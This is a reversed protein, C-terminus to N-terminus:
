KASLHFTLGLTAGIPYGPTGHIRALIPDGPRIRSGYYNQTEYYTKNTLNDISVNFDIWRRIPKVMSFDLVTLGSARVTPDLGDLRYSDIYRFRLSGSFGHWGALSLAANAVVHPARDVYIRPLTGRYFANSVKTLGGNLSLHRNMQLSMKAEFGHARSPGKFEYTGDDPIYVQENSRDILFLDSSLSLRNLHLAAGAQYFDTTSVRPSGPRQVVGRADQSAIGRGYNLHLSLPVRSSPTFALNAKPQVRGSGQSGSMLPDVRDRVNFRFYDVRMGADVHLRGNLVDIGQQVYGAGNTVHANAKSVLEIPNRGITRSLSVLIQNDHFNAGTLLLARQGFLKYPHLYQTNVGEILRSDHQLFEDGDREDNLFFTFNIFHDFLSRSTFGDLKFTDGSEWEKRYYAALTGSRVRGGNDPDLFGFRDLRGAAVEDLPIQGSSYFDNRGVNLKIGATQGSGKTWSYNGTLNDRRYRLPNLFPGDSRSGEYALLAHGHTVDPSYAVFARYTGFSGGQLRATYRDPLSEKLLIHVVGLGSFDGYEPSFPGNILNVEQVLEPTLSKLQGLYGQGHGQTAHNQQVNDVLVKLGGSVGGHDMNFGFRRVELSKGGGEHQGLSLGADLTHFVQDDRSFLTNRYVVADRRDISPELSAATIVLSEHIPPVAFEVVIRLNESSEEAGLLMEQPVVYNGGVRLTLPGWPVEVKFTGDAGSMVQRQGWASLITLSAAEVVENKSTVVVGSLVRRPDKEVGFLHGSTVWFVLCALLCRRGCHKLNLVM